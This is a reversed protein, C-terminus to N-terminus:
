WLGHGKGGVVGAIAPGGGHGGHQFAVIVDAGPARHGKAQRGALVETDTVVVVRVALEVGALEVGRCGDGLVREEGDAIIGGRRVVVGVYVGGRGGGGVGAHCDERDTEDTGHDKRQEPEGKQAAAVLALSTKPSKRIFCRSPRM